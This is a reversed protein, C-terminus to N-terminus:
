REGAIKQKNRAEEICSRLLESLQFLKRESGAAGQDYSRVFLEEINQSTFSDDMGGLFLPINHLADALEHIDNVITTLEQRSLKEPQATHLRLNIFVRYLFLLYGSFYPEPTILKPSDNVLGTVLESQRM